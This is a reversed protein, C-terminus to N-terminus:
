GTVRLDPPSPRGDEAAEAAGRAERRALLERLTALDAANDPDMALLEVLLTLPPMRAM